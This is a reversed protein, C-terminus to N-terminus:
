LLQTWELQLQSTNSVAITLDGIKGPRIDSDSMDVAPGSVELSPGAHRRSFRGVPKTVGGPVMSGCCPTAVTNAESAELM